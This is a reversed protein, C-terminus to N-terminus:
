FPHPSSRERPAKVMVDDFIKADHDIGTSPLSPFYSPTRSKKAQGGCIGEPSVDVGNNVLLVVALAPHRIIAAM